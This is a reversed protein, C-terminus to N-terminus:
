LSRRDKLGKRIPASVSPIASTPDDGSGPREFNTRVGTVAGARIARRESRSAGRRRGTLPSYIPHMDSTSIWSEAGVGSEDGIVIRSPEPVQLSSAVIAVARGIRIEGGHDYDSFLQCQRDVV